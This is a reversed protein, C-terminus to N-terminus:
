PNERLLDRVAIKSRTRRQHRSREPGPLRRSTVTDVEMLEVQNRTVPPRPLAEAVRALLHWAGFPFPVLSRGCARTERAVSRLFEEYTFVEPGAFEYLTPEREPRLLIARNCGGRRRGRGAAPADTRARVDSLGSAQAHSRARHHHFRRGARVHGGAARGGRWSIRGAGGTRRRRPKACLALTFDTSAGIGSVFVLREVGAQRALEAMTDAADVHVSQFTEVGREVYLSVANM